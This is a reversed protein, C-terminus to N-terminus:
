ILPLPGVTGAGITAIPITVQSTFVAPGIGFMLTPTMTTIGSPQVMLQSVPTGSITVGSADMKIQALLGEPGVSLTISSTDMKIQTLPPAGTPGVNITVSQFANLTFNGGSQVTGVTITEDGGVNETVNNNVLVLQDKEAHMRFLESGKKDEFMLENYGNGGITSKSKCGSQTKNEPLTYPVHHTGNYVCSSVLPRDPDGELYEVVVEMGIRPIFQHGWHDGSWPQACRVPCSKKPERDWYFQVWIHGHEDTSIEENEDGEKGVVKATQIGYIRPKPTVPLMRFPRDFPQFEYTGSYAESGPQSSRGPGTSRYYQTGFQHGARVVLYQTNEDGVPQENFDIIKKVEVLGGPFLSPAQGTAYRRHDLAQEAELRIQAAKKGKKEEDYKGPYDYLEFKSHEYSEATEKDCKLIKPPNTYDYDNYTIRGSRFRRDSTWDDLWQNIQKDETSMQGFPPLGKNLKEIPNHSSLSDALVMKHSGDANHEFYYYIGWQEMLRTVFDLDTERYQACYKITDYNDTTRFEFDKLGFGAKNFVEEIIAKVNKNRFIRCDARYGLLWLWPRMVIRYHYYPEEGGVWQGRTLIGNFFRFSGDFLKFKISCPRGLARDFKVSPNPSLAEVFFEFNEGIAETGSFSRLVLEDKDLQTNLQCTRKDQSLPNENDM